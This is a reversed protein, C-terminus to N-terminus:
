KHHLTLPLLESIHRVFHVHLKKRVEVPVESWDTRCQEPLIV